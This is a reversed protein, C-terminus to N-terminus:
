DRILMPELARWVNDVVIVPSDAGPTAAVNPQPSPTSALEAQKQESAGCASLAVLVALLFATSRLRNFKTMLFPMNM